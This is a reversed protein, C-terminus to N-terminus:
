NCHPVSLSRKLLRMNSSSLLLTEKSKLPKSPPIMGTARSSCINATISSYIPICVETYTVPNSKSLDMQAVVSSTIVVREVSSNQASKLIGVTGQVAPEIVAKADIDPTLGSTPSATHIIGNIGKIAEDFAGPTAIDEIIVFELNESHDKFLNRLYAAKSESRVAARVKFGREVIKNNPRIPLNSLINSM